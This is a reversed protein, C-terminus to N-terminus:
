VILTCDVMVLLIMSYISGHMVFVDGSGQIYMKINRLHNSSIATDIVQSTTLITSSLLLFIISQSTYQLNNKSIMFDVIVFSVGFFLIIITSCYIESRSFNYYFNSILMVDLIFVLIKWQNFGTSTLWRTSFELSVM